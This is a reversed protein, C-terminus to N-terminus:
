LHSRKPEKLSENPNLKPLNFAQMWSDFKATEYTYEKAYRAEVFTHSFENNNKLHAFARPAWASAPTISIRLPSPAFPQPDSSRNPSPSKHPQPPPLSAWASTFWLLFSSTSQKCRPQFPCSCTSHIRPCGSSLCSLSLQSISSQIFWISCQIASASYPSSPPTSANSQKWLWPFHRSSRLSCLIGDIVMSANSWMCNSLKAAPAAASCLLFKLSHSQLCVYWIEKSGSIQARLHSAKQAASTHEDRNEEIATEAWISYYRPLTPRM